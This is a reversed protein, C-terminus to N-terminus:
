AAESSAWGAAPAARPVQGPALTEAARRLAPAAYRFVPAPPLGTVAVLRRIIMFARDMVEAEELLRRALEQRALALDHPECDSLTATTGHVLARTMTRAPFRIRNISASEYFSAAAPTVNLTAATKERDPM